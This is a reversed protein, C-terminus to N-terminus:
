GWAAGDERVREMWFSGGRREVCEPMAQALRRLRCKYFWDFWFLVRWGRNGALFARLAYAENWSRNQEVWVRPYEFPYFIDHVQVLVGEALAPLVRFLYDAVDSGTKLVHSSDIFLIDGAGLERFAGTEVSQLREARLGRRFTADLRLAAPV